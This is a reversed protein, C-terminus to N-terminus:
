DFRTSHRPLFTKSEIFIFVFEALAGRWICNTFAKEFAVFRGSDKAFTRRKRWKVPQRATGCPRSRKLVCLESPERVFNSTKIQRIIFRCLHRPGVDPASVM